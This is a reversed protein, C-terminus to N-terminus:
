EGAELRDLGARLRDRMGGEEMFLRLRQNYGGPTNLAEILPACEGASLSSAVLARLFAEGQVPDAVRGGLWHAADGVMRAVPSLVAQACLYAAMEADSGLAFVSNRAGFIREVLEADGQVLIPSGGQAIAPFPLMLAAARAPHVMGSVQALPVGAMFSIVRQGERFTLDGLVAPAADAMLGLFVVDSRDVVSQNEAVTVNAHRQALAASVARSRESVTIQHGEGAIGRVVAGAITGTGIFGLRM